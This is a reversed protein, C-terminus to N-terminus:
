SPHHRPVARQVARLTGRQSPTPRVVLVDTTSRALLREADADSWAVMLRYGRKVLADALGPVGAADNALLLVTPRDPAETMRM